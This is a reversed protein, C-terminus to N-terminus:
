FQGSSNFMGGHQMIWPAAQPLALCSVASNVYLRLLDISYQCSKAYFVSIAM